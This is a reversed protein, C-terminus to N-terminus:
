LDTLCNFTDLFNVQSTVRSPSAAVSYMSPDHTMVTSPRPTNPDKVVNETVFVEACGVLAEFFELFTM